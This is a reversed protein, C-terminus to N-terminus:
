RSSYAFHYIFDQAQISSNNSPYLLIGCYDYYHTSVTIYQSISGVAPPLAVSVVFKGTDDTMSIGTRINNAASGSWAENIYHGTVSTYPVGYVIGTEADTTTVYGIMDLFGKARYRKGYYYGSPYDNPGMESNYGTIVIDQPTLVPTLNLIYNQVDDQNFDSGGYTIKIYYKGTTVSLNGAGSLVKKMQFNGNSLDTYVEVKIDNNSLTTANFNIEDYSRISPVDIVYWDSDISSSINRSNIYAGAIGFTFPNAVSPHEDAEFNDYPYSIAYDLTFAENISGGKASHVYLYYTEAVSNRNIIGVSEDLTGDSNMYTYNESADLITTGTSDFIYLDYDLNSNNPQKLRAQLLISPNVTISYIKADGAELLYDSVSGDISARTNASKLQVHENEKIEHEITFSENPFSQNISKSLDVEVPELQEIKANADYVVKFNETNDLSQKGSAFANSPILLCTFIVMSSVIGSIIKNM